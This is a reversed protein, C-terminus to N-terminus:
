PHWSPLFPHSSQAMGWKPHRTLFPCCPGWRAKIVSDKVDKFRKWNAMIAMLISVVLATIIAWIGAVSALTTAGYQPEALYAANMNPFVLYTFVANLAIVSVVPAIALAFCPLEVHEPLAGMTWPRREGCASPPIPSTMINEFPASVACRSPAHKGCTNQHQIQAVRLDFRKAPGPIHPMIAGWVTQRGAFVPIPLRFPWTRRQATVKAWKSGTVSQALM